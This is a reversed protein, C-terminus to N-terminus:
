HGAAKAGTRMDVSDPAPTEGIVLQKRGAGPTYKWERGRPLRYANGAEPLLWHRM